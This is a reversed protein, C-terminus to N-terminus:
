SPWLGPPDVGDVKGRHICVYAPGQSLRVSIGACMHVSGQTYICKEGRVSVWRGTCIHVYVPM